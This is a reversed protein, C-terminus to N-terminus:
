RKSRRATPSEQLIRDAERLAISLIVSAQSMRAGPWALPQVSARVLEGTCSVFAAVSSFIVRDLREIDLDTASELEKMRLLDDLVNLGDM